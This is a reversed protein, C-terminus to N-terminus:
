DGGGDSDGDGDNGFGTGTAALRGAIALIIVAFIGIIAVTWTRAGAYAILLVAATLVAALSILGAGMM